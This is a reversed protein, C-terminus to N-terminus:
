FLLPDVKNIARLSLHSANVVLLDVHAVIMRHRARKSILGGQCLGKGIIPLIRM